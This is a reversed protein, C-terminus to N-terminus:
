SERTAQAGIEVAWARIRSTALRAGAAEYSDSTRAANAHRAPTKPKQERGRDELEETKMSPARPSVSCVLVLSFNRFHFDM